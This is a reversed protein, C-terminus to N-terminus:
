QESNEDVFVEERCVPCTARRSLWQDICTAHFSHQCAPVRKYWEGIKIKDQCIPCTGHLTESKNGPISEPKIQDLTSMEVEISIQKSPSLPTQPFWRLEDYSSLRSKQMKNIESLALSRARSDELKITKSTKM